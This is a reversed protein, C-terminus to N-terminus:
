GRGGPRLITFAHTFLWHREVETPSRNLAQRYCREVGGWLGEVLELLESADEAGGRFSRPVVRELLLARAEDDSFCRSAGFTTEIADASEAAAWIPCEGLVHGASSGGDPEGTRPDITWWRSLVDIDPDSWSWEM